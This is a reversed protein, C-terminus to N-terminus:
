PEDQGASVDDAAGDLYEHTEGAAEFGIRVNVCQVAAAVEGDESEDALNWRQFRQRNAVAVGHIDALATGIAKYYGQDDLSLIVVGRLSALSSLRATMEAHLTTLKSM